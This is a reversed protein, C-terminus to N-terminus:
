TLMLNGIGQDNITLDLKFNDNTGIKLAKQFDLALILINEFYFRRSTM